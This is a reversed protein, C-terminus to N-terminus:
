GKLAERVAPAIGEAMRLFGLDNPHGGDTTCIDRDATGFLTMGDVFWVNEGRAQANIFTDYVAQKRANDEDDDPDANPKTVFVVPLTPNKERIIKYFPEHKERLYEPSPANHDFDMIFVRMPVENILHAIEPEGMCAGSFGLNIFAVDLWRSLIAPYACAPRSANGGQAISPGYVLVQGLQTRATPAFFQTGTEIGIEIKDVGNYPPLYITIDDGPNEVEINQEQQNEVPAVCGLLRYSGKVGAYVDLGSHGSAPQSAAYKAMNRLTYRVSISASDTRFRLTGGSTDWVHKKMGDSLAAHCRQPLRCFVQDESYWPFGELVMPAAPAQTYIFTKEQQM